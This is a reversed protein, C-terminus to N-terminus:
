PRCYDYLVKDTIVDAFMRYGRRRMHVNDGAGSILLSSASAVRNPAMTSKSFCYEPDMQHSVQVFSCFSSRADDQALRRWAEGFARVAQDFIEVSSYWREASGTNAKFTVAPPAWLSPLWVKASPYEEHIKDVLAAMQAAASGPETNNGYPNWGLAMIVLLNAGSEQVGSAISGVNWNNNEIYYKMSFQSNYAGWPALGPDWFANTKGDGGVVNTRTLYSSPHWGGRGEHKVPGGGRTGRIHINTLSLAARIDGAVVPGWESGNNISGDSGVVLAPNGTGTLQRSMENVWTGDGDESEDTALQSTTSDGICVINLATAPSVATTTDTLRVELEGLDLKKVGVTARMKVTALDDDDKRLRVIAAGRFDDFASPEPSWTMPVARDAVVGAAYLYLNEGVRGYAADPALYIIGGETESEQALQASRAGLLGFPAQDNRFTARIFAVGAPIVIRRGLFDDNTAGALIAGSYVKDAGYGAIVPGLSTINQCTLYFVQGEVVPIFSTTRWYEHTPQTVDGSTNLRGPAIFANAFYDVIASSNLMDLARPLGSPANLVHVPGTDGSPMSVRLSVAGPYVDGVKVSQWRALPNYYGLFTGGSDFFAFQCQAADEDAILGAGCCIWSEATVAIPQSLRISGASTVVGTSKHIYQNSLSGAVDEPTGLVSFLMDKLREILKKDYVYLRTTSAAATLRVYKTGAPASSIEYIQAGEVVTSYAYGLYAYDKDYFAYPATTGSTVSTGFRSIASTPSVEIFGTALRGSTNAPLGTANLIATNPAADLVLNHFVSSLSDLHSELRSAKSNVAAGAALFDTVQVWKGAALDTAFTGSTHGVTCAYMEGAKIVLSIPPVAVYATATVWATPSAVFGDAIRKALTPVTGGETSVTSGTGSAPGQIIARYKAADATLSDFASQLDQITM